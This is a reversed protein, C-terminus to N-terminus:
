LILEEKQMHLVYSSIVLTYDTKKSKFNIVFSTKGIVIFHFLIECQVIYGYRSM